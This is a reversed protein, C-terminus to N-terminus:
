SFSESSRIETQTARGQLVFDLFLESDAALSRAQRIASRVQDPTIGKRQSCGVFLPAALVCAIPCLGRSHSLMGSLRACGFASAPDTAPM